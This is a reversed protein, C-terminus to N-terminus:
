PYGILVDRTIHNINFWFDIISHRSKEKFSLYQIFHDYRVNWFGSNECFVFMRRNYKVYNSGLNHKSSRYKYVYSSVM